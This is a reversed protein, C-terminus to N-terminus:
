STVTAYVVREPQWLIPFPRTEALLYMISPDEQIWQKSFWQGAVQAAVDLDLIMGYEMTINDGTAVLIYQNDGILQTATGNEDEYQGGYRYHDIGNLNGMYMNNVDWVQEGYEKRRNDLATNVTSDSRLAAAATKGCIAIIRSPGVAEMILDSWTQIDEMITPSSGNWLPSATPTHAAPISYDISFNINEQSVTLSGSLAKAAMYEKTMNARNKMDALEQAIMMERGRSIDAGGAVYLSMGPARTQLLEKATLPKKMRIRPFKYTRQKRTTKTIVVGGEVDSVFPLIKKGGIVLDIDIEEAFRPTQDKFVMTSLFQPAVKIEEIMGVLQYWEYMNMTRTAAM